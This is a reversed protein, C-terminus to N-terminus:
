SPFVLDLFTSIDNESCSEMNKSCPGSERLFTTCCWVLIAAIKVMFFCSKWSNKSWCQRAPVWADGPRELDIVGSIGLGRPLALIGARGAFFRLRPGFIALFRLRQGFPLRPFRRPFREGDFKRATAMESRNQTRFFINKKTNRTTNKRRFLQLHLSVWTIKM